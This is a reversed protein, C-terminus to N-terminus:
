HLAAAFGSAIEESFGILCVEDLAEPHERLWAVVETAIVATAAEPPYGLIGASIAPLAVRRAGIEPAADLAARVAERLLAENDQGERYRPGVVHIVWHAPMAGGSTVAAQGPGVPGNEEVWRRSEEDVAPGGARAIAAAVGGGHMLQPNAANVVADMQQATIDGQEVVVRTNGVDM